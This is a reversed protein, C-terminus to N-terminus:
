LRLRDVIEDSPAPRASLQEVVWAAVPNAFTAAALTDRHTIWHALYAGAFSDGAGTADVVDAPTPGLLTPGDARNPDLVLAGESDLKLVVVAEPFLEALKGAVAEPEGDPLGAMVRGEEFNPFLVDPALAYTWPLFTDLGIEDIIQFSSPDLSVTAGGAHALRAAETVADRPPNTFLSWGTVHLHDCSALADAPLEEPTLLFDAGQGSVTSREGSPDILVAVSGTLREDSVTFHATVDEADLDERALEAFRDSGIKGIFDVAVGCRRAWVAVNAASGGPALLVQGLSDGGQLLNTSTKILVDWAYDGVVAIRPSRM